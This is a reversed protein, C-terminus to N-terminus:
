VNEGKFKEKFEADGLVCVRRDLLNLEEGQYNHVLVRYGAQREEPSKGLNLYLIHQDIAIPGSKGFALSNYGSWEYLRPDAAINAKVPNMDIYRSCAYFYRESQVIFSKFRGQFVHGNHDHTKNFYKAYAKSVHEMFKSLSGEEMPEVLLHIHNDMLVYNYLKVPYIKRTKDVLSLYEQFDQSSKFIAQQNNGRCIVHHLYGADQIRIPRPM